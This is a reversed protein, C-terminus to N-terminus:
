SVAPPRTWPLTRRGVRILTTELLRVVAALVRERPMGSRKLDADIHRRLEPLKQGFSVLREYKAEDRVERWRAHYRYQKRGRDDRGTAQVHGNPDPCIWVDTYAPPIALKRIREIEAKERLLKGNPGRYAFGKGARRRRIGPMDDSVYVLGAKAAAAPPNTEPLASGAAQQDM